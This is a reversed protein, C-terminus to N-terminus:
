IFEYSEIISKICWTADGQFNEIPVPPEEVHVRELGAKIDVGQFREKIWDLCLWQSGYMVPNHSLGPILAYQISTDPSAVATREVAKTTVDPQMIPDAGGQIIFLPGSVKKGGVATETIFQQLYPNEHWNDKLAQYGLMLDVFAGLFVGIKYDLQNNEWGKETFLDRADYDPYIDQMATAAYTVMLPIGPNDADLKLINTMPAIAISGLYGDVPERAQREAVAWAAGGGQSHGMVVFKHSLEPFATRAAEVAFVIDNAQAAHAAYQHVIKKGDADTGVGLGAYDPAVVVYGRLALTYPAMFHSILHKANSPAARENRGSTGHAWVVIPYKGDPLTPVRPPWLIYASTPVPSGQFNASQYQIRSLATAPPLSYLTTDTREEVKLLTGPAANATGPPVEYFDDNTGIGHALLTEEHKIAAITHDPIYQGDHLTLSSMTDLM